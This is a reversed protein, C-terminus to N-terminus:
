KGEPNWYNKQRTELETTKLLTNSGELKREGVRRRAKEWLFGKPAWEGNVSNQEDWGEDSNTKINNKAVFVGGLIGALAVVLAM